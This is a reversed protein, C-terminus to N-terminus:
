GDNIEVQLGRITAGLIGRSLLGEALPGSSDAGLLPLRRLISREEDTLESVQWRMEADVAEPQDPNALSVAKVAYAAAGLAHAGMHAVASAQTVARAAAAGAPNTAAGAAKGALFRKRIEEAASSEGASYARTREVADDIVASAAAPGDFLPRVREACAIAWRAVVRRDADSLTQPSTM